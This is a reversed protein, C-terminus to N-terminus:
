EYTKEAMGSKWRIIDIDSCVARLVQINSSGDSKSRVVLGMWHHIREKNPVKREQRLSEPIRSNLEDEGIIVGKQIVM